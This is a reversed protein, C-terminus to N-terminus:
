SASGMIYDAAKQAKGAAQIIMKPDHRLKGLWSNIYAAQNEFVPEAIGARNCLFAAGVEATLEEKSYDGSGFAALNGAELRNLRTAHGTSHVLEHFLTSYFAPAGTFQNLEPVKVSDTSPQYFARGGGYTIEPANPYAKVIDDCATIPDNRTDNATVPIEIGECQEINFVRYYRLMPITDACDDGSSDKGKIKLQKWFTIISSKEGKRINGGAAQAQKYTMWTNSAYPAIGLLLRNIGNYEKKSAYNVPNGGAWTKRWPVTGAELQTIIQDTIIQYVQNM